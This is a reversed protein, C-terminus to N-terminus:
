CRLSQLHLWRTCTRQKSTSAFLDGMVDAAEVSLVSSPHTDPLEADHLASSPGHYKTGTFSTRHDSQPSIAARLQHNGRRQSTNCDTSAAVPTSPTQLRELSARLTANEDVLHAIRSSSPRLRLHTHKVESFPKAFRGETTRGRLMRASGAMHRVNRANRSRTTAAWSTICRKASRDQLYPTTSLAYKEVGVFTM